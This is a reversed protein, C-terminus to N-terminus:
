DEINSKYLSENRRIFVKKVMPTECQSSDEIDTSETDNQTVNVSLDDEFSDDVKKVPEPLLMRSTSSRTTLSDSDSVTSSVWEDVDVDATHDPSKYPMFKKLPLQLSEGKQLMILSVPDDLNLMNCFVSNQPNLVPASQTSDPPESDFSEATM